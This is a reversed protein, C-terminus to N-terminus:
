HVYKKIEEWIRKDPMFHLNAFQCSKALDEVLKLCNLIISKDNSFNIINQLLFKVAQKSNILNIKNKTDKCLYFLIAVKSNYLFGKGKLEGFFPTSFAIWNNNIKQLAIIEDSLVKTKNVTSSITTKGAESPGFFILVKNKYKIGASHLLFGNNKILFISFFIRLLSDFSYKINHFETEGQLSNFNLKATLDNHKIFVNESKQSIKLPHLKQPFNNQQKVRLTFDTQSSNNFKQLYTAYNKKIQQLTNKDGIIKLKLTALPFILFHELSNQNM